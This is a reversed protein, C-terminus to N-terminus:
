CMIHIAVIGVDAFAELKDEQSLIMGFRCRSVRAARDRERAILSAEVEEVRDAISDLLV